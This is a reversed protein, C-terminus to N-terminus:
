ATKNKHERIVKYEEWISWIVFMDFITLAVLLGSFSIVLQYVQYLIFLGIVAISNPYAWLKNKLLGIILLLKVLGRSLLYLGIFTSSAFALNHAIHTLQNAIFDSSNEALEGNAYRLISDTVSSVPIFFAVIGAVTEAFSIIGKIVVSVLFYERIRHEQNKTFHQLM